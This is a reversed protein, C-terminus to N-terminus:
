MHYYGTMLSIFLFTTATAQLYYSYGYKSYMLSDFGQSFYNELQTSYLFLSIGSILCSIGTLTFRLPKSIVVLAICLLVISIINLIRITHLILSHPEDTKSPNCFKPKDEIVTCIKWLGISTHTLPKDIDLIQWQRTIQAVIIMIIASCLLM